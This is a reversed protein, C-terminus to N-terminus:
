RFNLNHTATVHPEFPFPIRIFKPAENLSPLIDIQVKGCKEVTNQKLFSCNVLENPKQQDLGCGGVM